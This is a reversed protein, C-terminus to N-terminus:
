AATRRVRGIYAPDMGFARGLAVLSLRSNKIAAVDSPGLRPRYRGGGRLTGHAVADAMNELATAWRIHRGNCCLKRGCSHAAQHQATPRDGHALVCVYVHADINRKAAGLGVNMAGYGSSARVAFPWEVCQDHDANAAADLFDARTMTM